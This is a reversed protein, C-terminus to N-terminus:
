RVDRTSNTAGTPRAELAVSDDPVLYNLQAWLRAADMELQLTQMRTEVENRRAALVDNLSAKGGRYSALAAQTRESSLPVLQAEYRRKRERLNEWEAVMAQAEALHARLMDERQAGAQAAMALKAALERDQRNKQDWQLPVSVGVSVMNSYSSGRVSYMLEVSWDSKKNAQALKAETTAIEEQKAMAQIQPHNAIEAELLHAHLRISDIDPKGALPQDADEGIWRALATKATRIRRGFESARDDLAVLAARAIFIDAQGGRGARYASEAAQIELRGEEAQRAIVQAMAEAYYRDLWAIAADRQIAAVTTAKEALSKEAEIEFRRARLRLKESRTLEQMVGVRRMTMFDRGISLRDPGEVPLNDVGLKVMPDPLQGASIAMERSATAAFDHAAIQRSRELALRQAQGLTLSAQAASPPACIAVASASAALVLAARLRRGRSCGPGPTAFSSSM